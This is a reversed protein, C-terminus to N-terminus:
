LTCLAHYTGYYLIMDKDKETDNNYGSVQGM